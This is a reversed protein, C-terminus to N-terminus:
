GRSLLDPNRKRAKQHQSFFLDYEREIIDKVRVEGSMLRSLLVDSLTALTQSEDDNSTLKEMLPQTIESFKRM